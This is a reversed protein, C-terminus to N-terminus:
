NAAAEEAALRERCSHMLQEITQAFERDVMIRDKVSRCGYLVTGHDKYFIRGLEAFPIDSLERVLYFVVQRPVAVAAMRCRMMLHECPVNFKHCVETVVKKVTVANNNDRIEDQELEGVERRLRAL